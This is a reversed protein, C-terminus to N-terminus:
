AGPGGGILAQVRADSGGVIAGDALMAQVDHSGTYLGGAGTGRLANTGIVVHPRVIVEGVIFHHAWGTGYRLPHPEQAVRSAGVLGVIGEGQHQVYMWCPVRRAHEGYMVREM